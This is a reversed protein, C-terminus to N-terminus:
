LWALINPTKRHSEVTGPKPYGAVISAIAHGHEPIGLRAKIGPTNLAELAAGIVCTGLGLSCAALILNEAALWCDAQVFPGTQTTAIVILADAGYFIDFNPDAFNHYSHGTSLGHSAMSKAFLPRAMGSIDALLQTDQVIVFSCPEEHMATPARVACLLLKEITARDIKRRQYARVSHRAFITDIVPESQGNM